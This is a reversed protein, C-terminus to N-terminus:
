NALIAGISYNKKDGEPPLILAITVTFTYRNGVTYRALPAPNNPSTIAFVAKEQTAEVANANKYIIIGTRDDSKFAVFGTVTVTKNLYKRSGTGVDNIISMLTPSDAVPIVAPTTNKASKASKLDSFVAYNDFGGNPPDIRRIFVTFTYSQGRQYIDLNQPNSRDTIFFSTDTNTVLTLAGSQFVSNPTRVTGTIMVTQNLYKTSGSEVDSVIDALAVSNNVPTPVDVAIPTKEAGVLTAFIVSDDIDVESFDATDLESRPFVEGIACFNTTCIPNEANCGITLIVLALM